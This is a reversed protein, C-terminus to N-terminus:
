AKEYQYLFNDLFLPMVPPVGFHCNKACAYCSSYFECDLVFYHILPVPLFTFHDTVYNLCCIGLSLNRCSFNSQQFLYGLIPVTGGTINKPHKKAEMQVCPFHCSQYQLCFYLLPLVVNVWLPILSIGGQKDPIYRCM